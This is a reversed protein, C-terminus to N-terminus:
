RFEKTFCHSSPLSWSGSMHGIPVLDYKKYPHKMRLIDGACLLELCKSKSGYQIVLFINAGCPDSVKRKGKWNRPSGLLM